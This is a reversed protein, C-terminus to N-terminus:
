RGCWRDGTGQRHTCGAHCASVFRGPIRSCLVSPSLLRRLKSPLKAPRQQDQGWRVRQKDKQHEACCLLPISKMAAIEARGEETRRPERPFSPIAGAACEHAAADRKRCCSTALTPGRREEQRLPGAKQTTSPLTFSHPHKEFRVRMAAHASGPRADSDDTTRAQSRETRM